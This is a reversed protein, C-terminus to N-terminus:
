GYDFGVLVFKDCCGDIGNDLGCAAPTIRRGVVALGFQTEAGGGDVVRNGYSIRGIAPCISVMDLGIDGYLPPILLSGAVAGDGNEAADSVLSFDEGAVCPSALTDEQPPMCAGVIKGPEWLINQFLECQIIPNLNLGPAHTQLDFAEIIHPHVLEIGLQQLIQADLYFAILKDYGHDHFNGPVDHARTDPSREQFIHIVIYLRGARLNDLFVVKFAEPQSVQHGDAIMVIIVPASPVGSGNGNAHANVAPAVIGSVARTQVRNEAGQGAFDLGSNIGM